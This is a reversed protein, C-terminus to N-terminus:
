EWKSLSKLGTLMEEKEEDKMCLWQRPWNLIRHFNLAELFLLNFGVEEPSWYKSKEKFTQLHLWRNMYDDKSYKGGM